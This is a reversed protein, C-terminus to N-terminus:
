SMAKKIQPSYIAAILVIGAIVIVNGWNTAPPPSPVRAAGVSTLMTNTLQAAQNGIDDISCCVPNFPIWTAYWSDIAELSQQLTTAAPLFQSSNFAPYNALLYDYTAWMESVKRRGDECMVSTCVAQGIM